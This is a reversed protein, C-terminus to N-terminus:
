RQTPNRTLIIDGIIPSLKGTECWIGECCVWGVQDADRSPWTVPSFWSM